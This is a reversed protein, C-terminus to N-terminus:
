RKSFKNLYYYFTPAPDKKNFNLQCGTRMFDKVWEKFSLSKDKVYCFDISLDIMYTNKIKYDSPLTNRQIYIAPLNIGAATAAYALGDHRFNVEM